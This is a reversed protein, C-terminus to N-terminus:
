KPSDTKLAIDINNRGSDVKIRQIEQYYSQPFPASSDANAKQIPKGDAGIEPMNTQISGGGPVLRVSHEGPQIGKEKFTFSAEYRGESDTSAFSSSGGPGVPAFELAIGEPAPKGNVTVVGTLSSLGNGCGPLFSLCVIVAVKQLSNV